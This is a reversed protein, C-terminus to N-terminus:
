RHDADGQRQHAGAEGRQDSGEDGYAERDAHL